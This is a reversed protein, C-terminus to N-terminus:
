QFEWPLTVFLERDSVDMIMLVLILLCTDVKTVLFM